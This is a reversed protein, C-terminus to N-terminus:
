SVTRSQVRLRRFSQGDAPRLDSVVFLLPKRCSIKLHLTTQGTNFMLYIDVFLKLLCIASYNGKVSNSYIERIGSNRSRGDSLSCVSRTQRCTGVILPPKSSAPTGWRATFAKYWRNADACGGWPHESSKLQPALSWPNASRSLSSHKCAKPFRSCTM